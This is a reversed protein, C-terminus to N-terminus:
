PLCAARLISIITALRHNLSIQISRITLDQAKEDLVGACRKQLNGAFTTDLTSGDVLADLLQLLQTYDLSTAQDYSGLRESEIDACKDHDTCRIDSALLIGYLEQALHRLHDLAMVDCTRIIQEDLDIAHIILVQHTGDEVSYEM